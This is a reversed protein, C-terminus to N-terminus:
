PVRTEFYGKLAQRLARKPAADQETEGPLETEQMAGKRDAAASGMELEVEEKGPGSEGEPQGAAQRAEAQAELSRQLAEVVAALARLEALVTEIADGTEPATDQESQPEETQSPAEDEAEAAPEDRAEEAEVPAEVEFISELDLEKNEAEHEMNMEGDLLHKMGCALADFGYQRALMRLDRDVPVGYQLYADYNAPHDVLSIEALTYDNIAWGGDDLFDIDDYKILIGVSLAPLLGNEVEFVAKPDIVKIELENWALGDEAGIRLVKGVPDPLHMRRINGWQRYRPIARETAGRTIVDGVEDKADSTFFGRVVLTGDGSKTFSKHLPVGIVKRRPEAWRNGDALKM